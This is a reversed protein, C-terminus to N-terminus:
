PQCLSKAEVSWTERPVLYKRNQRRCLNTPDGGDTPRARGRVSFNEDLLTVPVM